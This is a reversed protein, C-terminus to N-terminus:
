ARVRGPRCVGTRSIGTSFVGHLLVGHGLPRIAPVAVKAAIILVLPLALLLFTQGM